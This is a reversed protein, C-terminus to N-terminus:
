SWARAALDGVRYCDLVDAYTESDNIGHGLVLWFTAHRSRAICM